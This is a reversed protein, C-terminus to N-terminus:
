DGKVLKLNNLSTKEPAAPNRFLLKIPPMYCINRRVTGRLKIRIDKSAVSGDALKCTFNAAQEDDKIKGSLLNGLDTTLTVNIPDSGTFFQISDIASQAQVPLSISAMYLLLSICNTKM